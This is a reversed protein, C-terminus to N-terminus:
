SRPPFVGVTAVCFNIAISPQTIDIPRGSGVPAVATSLLAATGPAEDAYAEAAANPYTPLARGDPSRSSGSNTSGMLDHSHRPMQGLTLTTENAGGMRGQVFTPLGPGTGAHIMARGQLDPLKFTTRCDGGYECGLLSFLATYQQIPLLQGAAPLYGRPCFNEGVAIIQGMFPNTDALATGGCALAAICATLGAKLGYTKM